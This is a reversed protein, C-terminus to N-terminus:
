KDREKGKKWGLASIKGLEEGGSVLKRRDGIRL